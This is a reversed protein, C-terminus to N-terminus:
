NAFFRSRQIFHQPLHGVLVFRQNIIGHIIQAGQHLGQDHRNQAHQDASEHNRHVQRDEHKARDNLPGQGQIKEGSKFCGPKQVGAGESKTQHYPTEEIHHNDAQRSHHLLCPAGLTALKQLLADLFLSSKRKGVWRGAAGGTMRGDSGPM